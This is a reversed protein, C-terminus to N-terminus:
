EVIEKIREFAEIDVYKREITQNAINIQLPKTLLLPVTLKDYNTISYKSFGNILAYVGEEDLNTSRDYNKVIDIYEELSFVQWFRMESNILADFVGDIGKLNSGGLKSIFKNAVDDNIHFYYNFNSNLEFLELFDNTVKDLNESSLTIYSEPFTTGDEVKVIMIKRNDNLVRIFYLGNDYSVTYTIKNSTAVPNNVFQNYRYFMFGLFAVIIAIIIILILWIRRGRKRKGGIYVNAM